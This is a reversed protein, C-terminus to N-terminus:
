VVSKRDPTDDVRDVLYPHTAEAYAALGEIVCTMLRSMASPRPQPTAVEDMSWVSMASPTADSKTVYASAEHIIRMVSEWEIVPSFSRSGFQALM